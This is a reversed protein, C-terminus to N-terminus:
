SDWSPYANVDANATLLLKVIEQHGSGAAAQLVTRELYKAPRANVGAGADLLKQVIRQHGIEAAMQLPTRYGRILFLDIPVQTEEDGESVWTDVSTEAAFQASKPDSFYREIRDVPLVPYRQDVPDAVIRVASNRRADLRRIVGLVLWLVADHDTEPATKQHVMYLNVASIALDESSETIVQCLSYAMNWMRQLQGNSNSNM